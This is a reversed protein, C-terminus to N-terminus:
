NDSSWHVESRAIRINLNKTISCPLAVDFQTKIQVGCTQV